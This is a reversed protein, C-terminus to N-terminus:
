VVFGSASQASERAGLLDALSSALPEGKALPTEATDSTTHNQSRLFDVLQLEANHLSSEMISRAAAADMDQVARVLRTNEDVMVAGADAQANTTFLLKYPRIRAWTSRIVRVVQRNEAAAHITSLLDEDLDLVTVSDGQALAEELQGLTAALRQHRATSVRQVGLEISAPELLQRLGYFDKLDSVSLRSVVAGKHKQQSILGAEELRVLAGRVPMTSIGLGRAIDRVPLRQGPPLSGDLIWDQLLEAASPEPTSGSSTM